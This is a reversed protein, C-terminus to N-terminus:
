ENSGVCGQDERKEQEKKYPICEERSDRVDGGMLKNM